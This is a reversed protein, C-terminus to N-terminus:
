QMMWTQRSRAIMPRPHRRAGRRAGRPRGGRRARDNGAARPARAVGGDHVLRAEAHHHDGSASAAAREEPRAPARRLQRRATRGGPDRGSGDARPILTQTLVAALAMALEQRVAGQRELPLLGRNALRGVVVDTAHLTSLVLHGNRGREAGAADDRSGADRRRRARRAGPPRRCAPREVFDPSTAAWKRTSSSAAGHPHEYEIPDEITVIHRRERANIDAIISAMTTTKGSGTAGCILVLGRRLHALARHAAPVAAVRAHPGREPPRPRCRPGTGSATCTSGSATDRTSASRCTQRRGNATNHSTSRHSRRCCQRKSTRGM